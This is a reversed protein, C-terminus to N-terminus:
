RPPSRRRHLALIRPFTGISCMICGVWTIYLMILGFAWCSDLYASAALFTSDITSRRIGSFNFIHGLHTHLRLGFNRESPNIPLGNLAHDTIGSGLFSGITTDDIRGHKSAM